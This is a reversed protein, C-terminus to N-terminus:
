FIREQCIGRSNDIQGCAKGGVILLVSNKSKSNKCKLMEDYIKRKFIM